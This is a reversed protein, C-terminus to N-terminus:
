SQWRVALLATDDGADDNTLQRLLATLFDELSADREALAAAKLRALGADLIEGRREVLGDTYLVLTGEAPLPVVTSEYPKTSVVGVPVGVEAPMFDGGDRTVLLPPLHGANAVEMERGGIDVVVCLVTAFSDTGELVMLTSLKTLIDAPADHQAAYARIAFRLSAMVTAAHLGRGSVDGVVLLAKHDGMAIVDYWDGGIEMGLVGPLYRAATEAGPVDSLVDPLLAHQLNVALQRQETLLRKNDQFVGALQGALTVANRRQRLLREVVFGALLSFAGGVVALIWRIDASLAGSLIARPAMELTIENGGFPVVTAYRRGTLPLTPVNTSLLSAAAESRGLFIAYNLDSFVSSSAIASRRDHPLSSEAYVAFKSGGGPAVYAYGLRPSSSGLLGIVGLTSTAAARTFLASAATPQRALEPQAGAVAIPSAGHLPWLSLSVFPRGTGVYAAAFEDFQDLSAHTVESLESASVLPTQISPVASAVVLGAERVRVSLLRNEDEDFRNWSVAVLISTIVLGFVAGTLAWAMPTIGRSPQHPVQDILSAADTREEAEGM